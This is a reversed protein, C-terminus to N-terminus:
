CRCRIRLLYTCKTKFKTVVWEWFEVALSYLAMGPM